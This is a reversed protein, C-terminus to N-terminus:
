LLCTRTQANLFIGLLRFFVFASSLVMGGGCKQQTEKETISILCVLQRATQCLRVNEAHSDLSASDEYQKGEKRKAWFTENNLM